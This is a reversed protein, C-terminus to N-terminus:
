TRGAHARDVAGARDFRRPLVGGPLGAGDDLVDITVQEPEEGELPGTVTVVVEGPEIPGTLSTGHYAHDVTNQLLETLVLALPTAVDAPLTPM